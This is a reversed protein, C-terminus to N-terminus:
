AFVFVADGPNCEHHVERGDRPDILCGDEPVILKRAPACDSYPGDGCPAFDDVGCGCGAGDCMGAHGQSRLANLVFEQLPTAM